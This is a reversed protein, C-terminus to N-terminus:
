IFNSFRFAVEIWPRMEGVLDCPHGGGVALCMTLLWACQQERSLVLVEYHVGTWLLDIHRHPEKKSGFTTIRLHQGDQKIYVLMECGWRITMVATEIVTKLWPCDLPPFCKNSQLQKAFYEAQCSGNGVGFRKKTANDPAVPNNLAFIAQLRPVLGVGICRSSVAKPLKM